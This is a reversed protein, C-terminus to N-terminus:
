FAKQIFYGDRPTLSSLCWKTSGLSAKKHPMTGAIAKIGLFLGKGNKTTRSPSKVLQFESGNAEDVRVSAGQRM